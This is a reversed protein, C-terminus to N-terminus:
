KQLVAGGLRLHREGDLSAEFGCGEGAAQPRALREGRAVDVRERTGDLGRGQPWCLDCRVVCRCFATCTYCSTLLGFCHECLQLALQDIQTPSAERRRRSLRRTPSPPLSSRYTRCRNHWTLCDAVAGGQMESARRRWRQMQADSTIHATARVCAYTYTTPHYGSLVAKYLVTTDPVVAPKSPGKNCNGQALTRMASASCSKLVAHNAQLSYITPQRFRFNWGTNRNCPDLYSM